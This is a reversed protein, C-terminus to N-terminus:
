SAAYELSPPSTTGGTKCWMRRPISRAVIGSAQFALRFEQKAHTADGEGREVDGRKARCLPLTTACLQRVSVPRRDGNRGDSPQMGGGCIVRVVEPLVVRGQLEHRGVVWPANERGQDASLHRGSLVSEVAHKQRHCTRAGTSRTGTGSGARRSTASSQAGDSHLCRERGRGPINTGEGVM